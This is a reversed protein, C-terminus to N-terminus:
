FQSGDVVEGGNRTGLAQYTTGSIGENLFHVSGDAFLFQGGGTHLSNFCQDAIYGPNANSGSTYTVTSTRTNLPRGADMFRFYNHQAGQGQFNPNGGAWMPIHATDTVKYQNNASNGPAGSVEGVMATNSTGDLIQSINVTWTKTNDNSQVLCGNWVAGNPYTWSNYTGAGMESGLVALYNTKGYGASNTNPWTDTPCIFVPLVTKAAGTGLTASGATTNVTGGTNFTDANPPSTMRNLPDINTGGGPVFIMFNATDGMLATYLPGQELYPLIATGWGWNRNDDNFEGVPFRRYADHYGHLALGIQKLNNSCQMRAAAERVKQVAPLLLGILIAIIAIVVLLEILTFAVRTRKAYPM